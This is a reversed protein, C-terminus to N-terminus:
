ILAELLPDEIDIIKVSRIQLTIDKNAFYFGTERGWSHRLRSKLDGELAKAIKKFMKKTDRTTSKKMKMTYSGNPSAARNSRTNDMVHIGVANWEVTIESEIDQM